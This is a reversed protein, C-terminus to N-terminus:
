ENLAYDIAEAIENLDNTNFWSGGYQWYEVGDAKAEKDTLYDRAIDCNFRYLSYTYDGGLTIYFIFSDNLFGAGWIWGYYERFYEYFNTVVEKAEDCCYYELFENETIM